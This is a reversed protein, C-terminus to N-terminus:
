RHHQHRRGRGSRAFILAPGQTALSSKFRLPGNQQLHDLRRVQVGQLRRQLVAVHSQEEGLRRGVRVQAADVDAADRAQTVGGAGGDADVGGKRRGDVLHAGMRMRM